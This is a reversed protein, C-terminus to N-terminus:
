RSILFIRHPVSKLFTLLIIELTNFHFPSILMSYKDLVYLNFYGDTFLAGVIFSYQPQSCNRVQKEEEVKVAIQYCGEDVTGSQGTLILVITNM